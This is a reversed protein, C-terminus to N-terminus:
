HENFELVIYFGKSLKSPDLVRQSHYAILPVSEEQGGGSCVIIGKNPYGPRPYVRSKDYWFIIEECSDNINIKLNNLDFQIALSKDDCLFLPAGGCMIRNNEFTSIYKNTEVCRIYNEDMYFSLPKQTSSLCIINEKDETSVNDYMPDKKSGKKFEEKLKKSLHGKSTLISSHYANLLCLYLDHETFKITFSKM